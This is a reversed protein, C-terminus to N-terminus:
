MYDRYNTDRLIEKSEKNFRRIANYLSRTTDDVETAFDVLTDSSAKGMVYMNFYLSSLKDLNESLQDILGGNGRINDFFQGLSELQDETYFDLDEKIYSEKCNEKNIVNKIYKVLNDCNEKDEPYEQALEYTDLGTEKCAKKIESVFKRIRQKTSNELTDWCKNLRTIDNYDIEGYEQAFDQLWLELNQSLTEKLNLHNKYERNRTIM